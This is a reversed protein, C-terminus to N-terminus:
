EPVLCKLVSISSAGGVTGPQDSRGINGRMMGNQTKSVDIAFEQFSASLLSVFIAAPVLM